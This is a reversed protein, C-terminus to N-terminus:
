TIENDFKLYTVAFNDTPDFRDFGTVYNYHTALSRTDRILWLLSRKRDSSYYYHTSQCGRSPMDHLGSYGDEICLYLLVSHFYLLLSAM